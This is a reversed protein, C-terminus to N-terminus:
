RRRGFLLLLGGLILFVPWLLNLSIISPFLFSASLAVFFLGWFGSFIVPTTIQDGARKFAWWAANFSGFAPMLIFLAWWNTLRYDTFQPLIFVVGLLILMVGWIGSGWNDPASKWATPGYYKNPAAKEDKEDQKEMKEEKDGHWEPEPPSAETQYEESM